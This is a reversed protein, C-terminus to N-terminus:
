IEEMKRPARGGYCVINAANSRGEELGRSIAKQVNRGSIRLGTHGEDLLRVKVILSVICWLECAKSSHSTFRRLLWMIGAHNTVTRPPTPILPSFLRYSLCKLFSTSTTIPIAQFTDPVEVVFTLPPYVHRTQNTNSALYKMARLAFRVFGKLSADDGIAILGQLRLRRRLQRTSLQGSRYRMMRPSARPDHLCFILREMFKTGYVSSFCDHLDILSVLHEARISIVPPSGLIMRLRPIIISSAEARIQRSTALIALGPTVTNVLTVYHQDYRLLFRDRYTKMGLEEYVMLRIDKPLDLFRFPKKASHTITSRGPATTLLPPNSLKIPGM